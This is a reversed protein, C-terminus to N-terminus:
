ERLGGLFRVIAEETPELRIELRGLAKLGIWRIQDPLAKKDHLTGGLLDLLFSAEDTMEALPLRIPLDFKELLNIIREYEVKSIAGDMLALKSKAAIGVAVAEGHLYKDYEFYSEIAHGITHGFNLLNREGQDREDRMVIDSKIQVCRLIIEDMDQDVDGELLEILPIDFGVAYKIVEAMGNSWERKSLTRLFEANIQVREPQYFAGVLNKGGKLNIAVKGGVSSDVMALLTTPVQILRIGRMYTAAVFGALDGVVGGGFAVVLGKRTIGLNIMKELIIEYWTMSKSAEGYPVAIWKLGDLMESYLSAVNEDTIIVCDSMNEDTLYDRLLSPRCEKNEIIVSVQAHNLDLQIRKMDMQKM